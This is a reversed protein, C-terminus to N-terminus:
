FFVSDGNWDFSTSNFFEAAGQNIEVWRGNLGITGRRVFNTKGTEDAFNGPAGQDSDCM